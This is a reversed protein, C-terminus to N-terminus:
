APADTTSLLFRLGGHWREKSFAKNRRHPITHYTSRRTRLSPAHCVRGHLFADSAIGGLACDMRRTCKTATAWDLGVVGDVGLCRIGCSVQCGGNTRPAGRSGEGGRTNSGLVEREEDFACTVVKMLCCCGGRGGDVGRGCLACCPGVIAIGGRGRWSCWRAAVVRRRKGRIRAMVAVVAVGLTGGRDRPILLCGGGLANLKRPSEIGARGSM